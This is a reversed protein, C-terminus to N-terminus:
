RAILVLSDYMSTQRYAFSSNLWNTGEMKYWTIETTNPLDGGLTKSRNAESKQGPDIKPDVRPKRLSKIKIM